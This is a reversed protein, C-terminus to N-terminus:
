LERKWNKLKAKHVQEKADLRAPTNDGRSKIAANQRQIDIHDPLHGGNAEKLKKVYFKPLPRKIGDIVIYGHAFADTKGYKDLWTQGIGPRNSAASYPPQRKLITGDELTIDYATESEDGLTKKMVYGACYAASKATLDQVTAHGHGWIETLLASTYMNEGSGSKAYYVRDTTFDVNFLCAHYHPRGTQDGYEGCMFRRIPRQLRKTLRKHFLQYDRHQLSANPPLNGTGYTLTIFCNQPWMKSEHTIRAAWDAVRQMRCHTCKGCPLDFERILNGHRAQQTFVVEGSENQYARIPHYCPM